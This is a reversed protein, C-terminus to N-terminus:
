GVSIHRPFRERTGRRPCRPSGVDGVLQELGALSREITSQGGRLGVAVCQLGAGDRLHEFADGASRDRREVDVVEPNDILRQAERLEEVVPDETWGLVQGRRVETLQAIHEYLRQSNLKLFPELA